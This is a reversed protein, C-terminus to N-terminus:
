NKENITVSMHDNFRTWHVDNDYENDNTDIKIDIEIKILKKNHMICIVSSLAHTYIYDNRDSLIQHYVSNDSIPIIKTSSCCPISIISLNIFIKTPLDYMFIQNKNYTIKHYFIKGCIELLTYLYFKEITNVITSKIMAYTMMQNIERPLAFESVLFIKQISEEYFNGDDVLLDFFYNDELFYNADNLNTLLTNVMVNAVSEMYDNQILFDLLLGQTHLKTLIKFQLTDHIQPYM